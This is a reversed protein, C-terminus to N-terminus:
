AAVKMKAMHDAIWEVAKEKSQFGGTMVQNDAKRLVEHLRKGVNWRTIFPVDDPVETVKPEYARIPEVKVYGPGIETVILEAYLGTDRKRVEIIDGRGRTKDHGMIQASLNAWFAPLLADDLTQTEDLEASWRNFKFSAVGFNRDALKAAKTPETM